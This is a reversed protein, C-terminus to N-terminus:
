ITFFHEYIDIDNELVDTQVFLLFRMPWGNLQVISLVKLMPFYWGDANNTHMGAVVVYTFTYM